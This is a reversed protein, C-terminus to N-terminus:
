RDFAWARDTLMRAAALGVAISIVVFVAQVGSYVATEVDGNNLGVIARYVAAGPVMIVVAPVSVTIRPVKILPAVWAALLGVLLTAIMTSAQIAVGLDALELRLVNTVMGIAAAGLAMRVPSNFMLAFGLVGLFSALLRFAIGLLVPIEAPVAPAPDLGALWSVAWVSFGASTLITLAYVTRAVGASFDLKALDLAGTVLAFGPVLFLVASVYGAQHSAGGGDAVADLTLVFALYVLCAAAAAIMTTGFHNIHRHLFTRRVFQGVGAAMFVGTVEVPGGNNLYAFAGCAMAAFSANALAPYLPPIKEIRDLETNIHEVTAGPRLGNCLDTLQALRHSNVGISRVEAVETRFIPGRHSTSTIETLTVHAQHRDLGLAQAVQQMAAKVRYSGTGSALMAKGVRLVAGSQRILGVPELADEDRVNSM